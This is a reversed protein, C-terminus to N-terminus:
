FESCDVREVVVVVVVINKETELLPVWHVRSKEGSETVIM